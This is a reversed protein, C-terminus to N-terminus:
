KCGCDTPNDKDEVHTSVKTIKGKKFVGTFNKLNMGPALLNEAKFNEFNRAITKQDARELEIGAKKLSAVPDALYAHINEESKGLWAVMKNNAEAFTHILGPTLVDHLHPKGDLTTRPRCKDIRAIKSIDTVAAVVNVRFNHHSDQPIVAKVPKDYNKVLLQKFEIANEM